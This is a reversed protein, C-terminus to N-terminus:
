VKKIYIGDTDAKGEIDKFKSIITSCSSTTSLESEDNHNIRELMWKKCWYTDLEYYGEKMFISWMQPADECKLSKCIELDITEFDEHYLMCGIVVNDLNKDCIYLREM